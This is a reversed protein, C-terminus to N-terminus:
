RRTGFSAGMGLEGAAWAEHMLRLAERFGQMDGTRSALAVHMLAAIMRSSVPMRGEGDALREGTLEALLTPVDQPVITGPSMVEALAFYQAPTEQVAADSGLDDAQADATEEPQSALAAFSEAMGLLMSMLNGVPAPTPEASATDVLRRGGRLLTETDGTGWWRYEARLNSGERWRLDTLGQRFATLRAQGEVDNGIQFALDVFLHRDTFM